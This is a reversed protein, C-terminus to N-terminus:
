QLGKCHKQIIIRGMMDLEDPTISDKYQSRLAKALRMFVEASQRPSAIQPTSYTM